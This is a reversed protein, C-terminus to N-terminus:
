AFWHRSALAQVVLLLSGGAPNWLWTPSTCHTLAAVKTRLRLVALVGAVVVRIIETSAAKTVVMELNQQQNIRSSKEFRRREYSEGGFTRVVRYCDGPIHDDIAM